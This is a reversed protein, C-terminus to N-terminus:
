GDFKAMEHMVLSGLVVMSAAVGLAIQGKLTFFLVGVFDPQVFWLMALVLVPLSGIILASARAEQGAIIIKEALASRADSTETLNTLATVISGGTETQIAIILAFFEAADFPLRAAMRLCAEPMTLGIAQDSLIRAFESRLPQPGEASILQMADEITLGSKLTRVITGLVGPFQSEALRLRAALRRKGILVTLGPLLVLAAFVALVPPLGFAVGAGAVILSGLGMFIALTKPEAELGNALLWRRVRGYGDDMRANARPPLRSEMTPSVGHQGGAQQSRLQSMRRLLDRRPKGLAVFVFGLGAVVAILVMGTLLWDMQAIM